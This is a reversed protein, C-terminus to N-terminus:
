AAFPGKACNTARRTRMSSTLLEFRRPDVLLVEDSGRGLSFRPRPEKSEAPTGPSPAPRTLEKMTPTMEGNTGEDSIMIRTFFAQNFWRRVHNPADRYAALCDEALDLARALNTQLTEFKVASASLREDIARIQGGIQDQESRLLELPIANAYHAELLKRQKDQLTIRQRTLTARVLEADEFETGLLALLETELNGRAEAGLTVTSYLNAVREEVEDIQLARQTCETRKDHRGACVFYEYTVGHRNTSMQVSLRSHCNGCYISGNLYHQHRRVKEGVVHAAMVDQVKQWIAVSVLPEHRGEYSVGQFTVDGKYYSNQFIKHLHNAYIPRSPRTPTPPTTLGRVELETALTKISIDGETYREFAWRVLPARVEDIEVTRAERGLEDVTRINRYGMPARSVTGGSRAKQTLGKLVENALNRSYFEAISSMIGHLLMGSPTEDINETASILRVGAKTLALNIEVDDARNRALRDVKHVICFSIPEQSVFELMQKLEPRDASRASEGRDVFEAIVDAGLAAAARLNAERQAPISYGEPDGDREAQEKTSVRLYSVALPRTSTESVNTM